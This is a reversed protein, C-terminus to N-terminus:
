FLPYKTKKEIRWQLFYLSYGENKLVVFNKIHAIKVSLPEKSFDRDGNPFVPVALIEWISATSAIRPACRTFLWNDSSLNTFSFHASNPLFGFSETIGLDVTVRAETAVDVKAYATFVRSDDPSWAIPENPLAPYSTTVARWSSPDGLDVLYLETDFVEEPVDPAAQYDVGFFAVTTGAHNLTGWFAARQGNSYFADDLLDTEIDEDFRFRRQPTTARAIYTAADSGSEDKNLIGDSDVDLEPLTAKVTVYDDETLAVLTWSEGLSSPSQSYSNVLSFGGKCIM